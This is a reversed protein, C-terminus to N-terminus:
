LRRNRPAEASGTVATLSPSHTRDDPRVRESACGCCKQDATEGHEDNVLGNDTQQM